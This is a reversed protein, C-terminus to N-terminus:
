LIEIHKIYEAHVKDLLVYILQFEKDLKSDDKNYIQHRVNMSRVSKLCGVNLKQVVKQLLVTKLTSVNKYTLSVSLLVAAKIIM